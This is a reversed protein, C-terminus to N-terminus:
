VKMYKKSKELAIIGNCDNIYGLEMLELAEEYKCTFYKIYEFEDLNQDGVKICNNLLFAQNYAESCGSDQYFSALPTVDDSYYGTEEMLERKAAVIGSEGKEVYGAPLGVGVTRATAIRPEVVLLTDGEKTIPLMVVASGIQNNKLILERTLTKGNNLKVKLRKTTIFHRKDAEDNNVEFNKFVDEEELVKVVKFEEILSKIEELKEKRM